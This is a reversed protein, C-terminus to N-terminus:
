IRFVLGGGRRFDISVQYLSCLSPINRVFFKALVSLRLAFPTEM